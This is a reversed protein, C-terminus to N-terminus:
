PKYRLRKQIEDFIAQYRHMFTPGTAIGRLIGKPGGDRGFFWDKTVTRITGDETKVDNREYM